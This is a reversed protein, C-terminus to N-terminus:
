LEHIRNNNEMQLLKCLNEEKSTILGKIEIDFDSICSGLLTSVLIERIQNKVNLEALRNRQKYFPQNKFDTHYHNIYLEQIVNEPQFGVIKHRNVVGNIFRCSTDNVIYITKIKERIIFDRVELLYEFEQFQIVAGTFTLFFIDKGYKNQLFPEMCSFPCVIFLQNAMTEPAIGDGKAVTIRTM